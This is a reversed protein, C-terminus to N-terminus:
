NKRFSKPSRKNLLYLFRNLVVRIKKMIWFNMKTCMNFVFLQNIGFCIGREGIKIYNEPKLGIASEQFFHNKTVKFKFITKQIWTLIFLQIDFFVSVWLDRENSFSIDFHSCMEKQWWDCFTNLVWGIKQLRWNIRMILVFRYGWSFFLNGNWFM